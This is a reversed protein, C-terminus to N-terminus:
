PVPTHPAVSVRPGQEAVQLIADAANGPGDVAAYLEQIRRAETRFRPRDLIERAVRAIYPTQADRRSVLRGAGLREVLAVNLDQELQLPVGAIPTGCAMATQVSGQGGTVVALDVRPKVLESPLM